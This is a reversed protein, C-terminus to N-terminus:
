ELGYKSRLKAERAQYEALKRVYPRLTPHSSQAWNTPSSLGLGRAVQEADRNLQAWASSLERRAPDAAYKDRRAGASSAAAFAKRNSAALRQAEALLARARPSQAGGLFTKEHEAVAAKMRALAEDPRYAGGLNGRAFQHLGVLQLGAMRFSPSFLEDRAGTNAPVKALGLAERWLAEAESQARREVTALNLHGHLEILVADDSRTRASPERKLEEVCKRADSMTLQNFRGGLPDLKLLALADGDAALQASCLLLLLSASLM